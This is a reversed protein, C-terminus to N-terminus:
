LVDKAFYATAKKLIDIELRARKLERSLRAVEDLEPTQHGKGPFAHEGDRAQEKAWRRLMNANLKLLSAAQEFSHGKQNVLAVAEQKFEKSYQQKPKHTM